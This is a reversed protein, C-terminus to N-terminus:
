YEGNYEKYGTKRFIAIHSPVYSNKTNPSLNEIFDIAADVLEESHFINEDLHGSMLATAAGKVKM